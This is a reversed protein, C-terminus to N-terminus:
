QNFVDYAEPTTHWPPTRPYRIKACAKCAHAVGMDRLKDKHFDTTPLYKKCTNCWAEGAPASLRNQRDQWLDSRNPDRRTHLIKSFCGKCYTARGSRLTPNKWFMDIALYGQCGSCWHQGKPAQNNQSRRARGQNEKLSIIRINSIEYHGDPNIRDVSPIINPHDHAWALYKPFAWNLWEEFTLRVEVRSYSQHFQCRWWMNGWTRVVKAYAQRNEPSDTINLKAM